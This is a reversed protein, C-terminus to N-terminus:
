SARKVHQWASLDAPTQAPTPRAVEPSRLRGARCRVRLDELSAAPIKWERGANRYSDRVMGQECWTRITGPARGLMRAAEKATYEAPQAPAATTGELLALLWERPLSISSGAPLADALAQLGARAEPSV